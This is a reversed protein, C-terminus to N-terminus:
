RGRRTTSTMDAWISSHAGRPKAQRALMAEVQEGRLGAHGLQEHVRELERMLADRGCARCVAAMITAGPDLGARRCSSLQLDRQM